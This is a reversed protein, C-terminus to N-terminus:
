SEVRVSVYNQKGEIEIVCGFAINCFTLNQVPLKIKREVTVPPLSLNLLRNRELNFSPCNGKIRIM